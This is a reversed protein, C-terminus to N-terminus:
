AMGAILEVARRTCEPDPKFGMHEEVIANLHVVIEDAPSNQKVLRYVDPIYPYYEDRADPYGAIGIPDWIYRLVEDCRRYLELERAPLEQGM